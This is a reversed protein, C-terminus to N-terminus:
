VLSLEISGFAEEQGVRLFNRTGLSLVHLLAQAAVIASNETPPLLTEFTVSKIKGEEHEGEHERDLAAVAADEPSAPAEEIATRVFALFNASEGILTTRQWQSNEATQTDVQAAPGFLEYDQEGLAAARGVGPSFDNRSSTILTDPMPLQFASDDDQNYHQDPIQPLLSSQRHLPSASVLRSGRRSFVSGPPGSTSRARSGASAAANWPLLSSLRRDELPTPADRGQEITNDEDDPLINFQNDFDMGRGIETPLADTRPHVRRSTSTEDEDLSRKLLNIGTFAEIIRAGSFMDLPGRRGMSLVSGLVWEEANAKAIASLKHLEKQRAAHQMNSLYDKNWQNL